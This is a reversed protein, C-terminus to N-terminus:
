GTSSISRPRCMTPPRSRPRITSPTAAAEERTIFGAEVMSQSAGAQRTRRRSRSSRGSQLHSPAKLVGALTAAEALHTRAASKGFLSQAAKEIGTAGAGYYVRNLYLQLIEDKSFSRRSGSPWCWRRCSQASMTREPKLFLNKALQQTLTSGGQVSAARGSITTSRARHPRDSRRRFALPLPPGRHRHRCQACLRSTRRPPSRRRYFAGQEALSTGDAALMMIGPERDPIKCCARRTSRLWIYGFVASWDSPAGSPWIFLSASLLVGRSRRRAQSPQKGPPGATAAPFCARNSASSGRKRKKTNFMGMGTGAIDWGQLIVLTILGQTPFRIGSFM